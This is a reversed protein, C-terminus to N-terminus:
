GRARSMGEITDGSDARRDSASGQTRSRGLAAVVIGAVIATYLGHQPAVEVAIALAM